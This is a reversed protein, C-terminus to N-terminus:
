NGKSWDMGVGEANGNGNGGSSGFYTEWDTLDEGWDMLDDETQKKEKKGEGGEDGSDVNLAGMGEDPKVLWEPIGTDGIGYPDWQMVMRLRDARSVDSGHTSQSELSSPTLEPSSWDSPPLGWDTVDEFQSWDEVFGDAGSFIQTMSDQWETNPGDNLIVGPLSMAPEKPPMEFNIKEAMVDLLTKEEPVAPADAAQMARGDVGKKVVVTSDAKGAAAAKGGGAAPTGSSTREMKVDGKRNGNGIVVKGRAKAAEEVRRREEEANIFEDTTTMLFKLPDEIPRHESERHVRLAEESEFGVVSRECQLDECKFKPKATGAEAALKGGQQAQPQMKRAQEPSPMKAAPLSPSAATGSPTGGTQAAPTSSQSESQTGGTTKRKKNPPFKLKDQTLQNQTPDYKPVGHPSSLGWDFTKNETPAPPAKSNASQKRGHVGQQSPKRDLPPAPAPHQQKNATPPAAAQPPQQQQVQAGNAPPVAGAAVAAAQMREERERKLNNMEIFYQQLFEFMKKLEDVRVGLYDKINGEADQCNQYVMIKIKMATRMKTEDMNPSRFAFMFSRELNQVPQWMKKLLMKAQELENTNLTIPPGKQVTRAIELMMQRIKQADRMNQEQQANAFIAQNGQPQQQGQMQQQPQQNLNATQNNGIGTQAKRLAELQQMKQAMTRQQPNMKALEEQTPPRPLGQGQQPQNPQLQQMPTPPHQSMNNMPPATPNKIEIVDDSSTQPRKLGQMQGGQQNQGPPPQPQQPPQGIQPMNGPANGNALSQARQMQAARAQQLQAMARQQKQKMLMARIQDDTANRAGPANDRIQKVEADTPPPLQPMRLQPGQSAVNMNQNPPQPQMPAAPPVMQAPPATPMPMSTPPGTTPPQQMHMQQGPQQQGPQQGGQQGRRYAQFRQQFNSVAQQLDEPHLQFWASQAQNVREIMNPPLVNQNASIHQKLREWSTVDEPVQMGLSNLTQKPFQHMDMAKQRFGPHQQIQQLTPDVNPRGMQQNPPPQTTFNPVANGMNQPMGGAMPQQMGPNQMEMGGNQQMNPMNQANNNNQGAQKAYFQRIFASLQPPELKSLKERMEPPIQAFFRQQPTMNQAPQNMQQNNQNLMSQHHQALQNAPNMPTQPMGQPRNQQPTAPTTQGPPAMPRNLMSMNNMAPSNVHGGNLGNPTNLGGPQGRLNNQAQAQAQAQQQALRNQKMTQEQNRQQQLAFLQAQSMGRPNGGGQNNQNALMQPNVGQSMNMQRGMNFSAHSSAPVVENGSEQSKIANAQLGTISSFDISSGPPQQLSTPQQYINGPGAMGNGMFMNAQRNNPPPLGREKHIMERARNMLFKSLPDGPMAKIKERMPESLSGLFQNRVKNRGADDMGTYIEKARSGVEEQTPLPGPQGGGNGNMGQQQNPQGMNPMQPPMQPNRLAAPDMTNNQMQQQPQNQQPLPSPQMQRQLQAPFVQNQLMNNAGMQGPMGMGMGVNSMDMGGNMNLNMGGMGQNQMMNMNGMNNQMMGMNMNDNMPNMMQGNQMLQPAHTQRRQQIEAKKAQMKELYAEKTPSDRITRDEFGEAVSICQGIDGSNLM